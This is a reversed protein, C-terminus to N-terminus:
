AARERLSRMAQKKIQSVRPETVGLERSVDHQTRGQGYIAYLVRKQRAPLREIERTLCELREAWIVFAEPTDHSVPEPLRGEETLEDVSAYVYTRMQAEIEDRIAGKIRHGLYTEITAGSQGNYRHVARLAAVLGAQLVDDLFVPRPIQGSRLMRWGIRRTLIVLEDPTM